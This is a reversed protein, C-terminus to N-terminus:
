VILDSPRPVTVAVVGPVGAGVRLADARAEASPYAGGIRVRGFEARVVLHSGHNPASRGIASAVASVLEVDAVLGEDVSSVGRVRRTLAVMATAVQRSRVHGTLTVRGQGVAVEYRALSRIHWGDDQDLRSRVDSELQRDREEGRDAV